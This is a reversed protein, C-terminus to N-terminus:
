TQQDQLSMEIAEIVRVSKIQHSKNIICFVNISMTFYFTTQFYDNRIFWFVPQKGSFSNLYKIKTVM